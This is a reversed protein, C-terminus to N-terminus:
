APREVRRGERQAPARGEGDGYLVASDDATANAGAAAAGAAGGAGRTLISLEVMLQNTAACFPWGAADINFKVAGAPVGVLGGGPGYPVLLDAPVDYLVTLNITAAALPPVVAIPAGGGPCAAGNFGPLAELGGVSLTVARV